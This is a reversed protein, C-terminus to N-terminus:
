EVFSYSGISKIVKPLIDIFDLRSQDDLWAFYGFSNASEIEYKVKNILLSLQTTYSGEGGKPLFFYHNNIGRNIIQDQNTDYIYNTDLALKIDTNPPYTIQNTNEIVLSKTSGNTTTSYDFVVRSKFLTVVADVNITLLDRIQDLNSLFSYNPQYWSIAKKKQDKYDADIDRNGVRERFFLFNNLKIKTVLRADKLNELLLRLANSELSDRIGELIDNQLYLDIIVPIDVGEEFREKTLKELPVSVKIQAKEYGDTEENTIESFVSPYVNGAIFVNSQITNPPLISNNEFLIEFYLNLNNQDSWTNQFSLLARFYIPNSNKDVVITGDKNRLPNLRWWWGEKNIVIPKSNNNSDINYSILM